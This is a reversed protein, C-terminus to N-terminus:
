RYSLKANVVFGLCEGYLDVQLLTKYLAPNQEKGSLWGKAVQQEVSTHLFIASLTSATTTKVEWRGLSPSTDIFRM